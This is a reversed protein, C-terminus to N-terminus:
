RLPAVPLPDDGDLCREWNELLEYKHLECWALVMKLEEGAIAGYFATSEAIGVLVERGAFRVHIHPPYHPNCACGMSIAIGQWASIKKMTKDENAVLENSNVSALPDNVPRSNEYLKEELQWDLKIAGFAKYKGCLDWGIEEAVIHLQKVFVDEALLNPRGRRALERVWQHLYYCRVTGDNYYVHLNYNADAYAQWPTAIIQNSIEM